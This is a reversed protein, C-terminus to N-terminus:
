EDMRGDAKLTALWSRAEQNGPLLAEWEATPFIGLESNELFFKERGVPPMGRVYERLERRCDKLATETMSLLMDKPYREELSM